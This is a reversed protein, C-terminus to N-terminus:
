ELRGLTSPGIIQMQTLIFVHERLGWEANARNVNQLEVGLLAMKAQIANLMVMASENLSEVTKGEQKM